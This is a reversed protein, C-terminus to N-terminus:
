ILYDREWRFPKLQGHNLTGHLRKKKVELSHNIIYNLRILFEEKSFNSEFVDSIGEKITKKRIDNNIKPYLMIFPLHETNKDSKLLKMLSMGNIGSGDDSSVVADVVGGNKTWQYFKFGNEFDIVSFVDKSKLLFEETRERNSDIFAITRGITSNM